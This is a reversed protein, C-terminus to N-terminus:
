VRLALVRSRCFAAYESESLYVSWYGNSLKTPNFVTIGHSALFSRLEEIVVNSLIYSRYKRMMCPEQTFNM